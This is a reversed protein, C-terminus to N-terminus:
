RGTTLVVRFRADGSMMREYGAAANELACTEIRPRVATLASFDLTDESDKSTGSAHGIVQRSAVSREIGHEAVVSRHRRIETTPLVPSRADRDLWVALDEDSSARVSPRGLRFRVTQRHRAIQGVTRKISAEANIPLQPEGLARKV